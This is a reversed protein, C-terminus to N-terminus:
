CIEPQQFYIESEQLRTANNVNTHKDFVKSCRVIDLSYAM